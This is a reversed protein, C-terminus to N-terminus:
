EKPVIFNMQHELDFMNWVKVVGDKGTSGVLYNQDFEYQNNAGQQEPNFQNPSVYKFDLSSLNHNPDHCSKLKVTLEEIFNVLWFSGNSSIFIAEAATSDYFSASPFGDIQLKRVKGSFLYEADSADYDFDGITKKLDWCHVKTDESGEIIIRSVMSTMKFIGCELVKFSHLFYNSRTDLVWVHGTSLGLLLYVSNQELM